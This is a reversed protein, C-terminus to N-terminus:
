ENERGKRILFNVLNLPWGIVTRHKFFFVQTMRMQGLVDRIGFKNKSQIGPPAMFGNLFYLQLGAKRPM